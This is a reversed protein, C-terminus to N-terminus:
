SVDAEPGKDTILVDFEGGPSYANSKEISLVYITENPMIDELYKRVALCITASNLRLTNNGIM